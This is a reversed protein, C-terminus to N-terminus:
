SNGLGCVCREASFPGTGSSQRREDILSYRLHASWCLSHLHAATSSLASDAPHLQCRCSAATVPWQVLCIPETADSISTDCHGITATADNPVSTRARETTM